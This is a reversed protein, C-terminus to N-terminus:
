LFDDARRPAPRRPRGGARGRATSGRGRSRLPGGLELRGRLSARLQDGHSEGALELVGFSGSRLPGPEALPGRRRAARIVIENEARVHRARRRRAPAAPSSLSLALESLRVEATAPRGPAIRASGTGSVVGGGSSERCRRCFRSRADAESLTLALRRRPRIAQARAPRRSRHHRDPPRARPGRGERAAVIKITGGGLAPRRYSIDALTLTARCRRRGRRGSSACRGRSEGAVPLTTSLPRAPPRDPVASRRRRARPPGLLAIRGAVILQSSRRAASRCLTWTSRRIPWGCSAPAPLRVSRGLVTIAQHERFAIDLSIDDVHRARAGFRSGAARSTAGSSGNSRSAPERCADSRPAAPLALAARGPGLARDAGGRLLQRGVDLPRRASRAARRRRAPCGLPAGGHRRAAPAGVEGRAAGGQAAGAGGRRPHRGAHQAGARRRRRASRRARAAPRRAHRGRVAAAGVAAVHARRLPDRQRDRGGAPPRPDGGSGTPRGRAVVAVPSRRPHPRGAARGRRPLRAQRVDIDGSKLDLVARRPTSPSATSRSSSACDSRPARAASRCTAGSAGSGPSRTRPTPPTRIRAELDIGPHKSDPSLGYVGSFVGGGRHAHPRDRRRLTSASATRPTPPPPSAISGGASSRGCSAARRARPDPAARRRARGRGEGRLHLSRESRSRGRGTCTACCSAGTSLHLDDRRRRARAKSRSRRAPPPKAPKRAARPAGEFAALFGVKNPKTM